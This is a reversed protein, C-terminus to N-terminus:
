SGFFDMRDQFFNFLYYEAYPLYLLSNFYFISSPTRFGQLIQGIGIVLKQEILYYSYPFHYYAFDDHSKFIFISILLIFFFLSTIIIEKKYQNFKSKNFYFFAFFGILLFLFNHLKEHAFFLNSLYSYILITSIGFLGLYGFCNEIINIRLYKKLIFGFGLISILIFYFYFIYVFLNVM